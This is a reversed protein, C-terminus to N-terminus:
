LGPVMGNETPQNPQSTDKAVNGTQPDFLYRVWKHKCNKGGRWLFVNYTNSGRPGQGPNANNYFDIENFRLMRLGTLRVMRRCFDRSNNGLNSSGYIDSEYRYLRTIAFDDSSEYEEIFKDINVFTVNDPDIGFNEDNSIMLEVWDCFDNKEKDLEKETM